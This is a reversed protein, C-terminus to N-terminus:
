GKDGALYGEEIERLMIGIDGTPFRYGDARELAALKVKSAHRPEERRASRLAQRVWEAVTMHKRRAIAQIETYESEDFLVQMRKSMPM